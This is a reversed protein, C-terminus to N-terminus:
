GASVELSLSVSALGDACSAGTEQAMGVLETVALSMFLGAFHVEEGELFLGSPTCHLFGGKQKKFAFVEEKSKNEKKGREMVCCLNNYDRSKEEFLRGMDLFSVFAKM